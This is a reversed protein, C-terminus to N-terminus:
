KKKQKKNNNLKNEIRDLRIEIDVIANTLTNLQKEIHKMTIDINETSREIQSLKCDLSM